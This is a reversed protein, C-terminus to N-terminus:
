ATFCFGTDGWKKFLPLPLHASVCKLEVGVCVKDCSIFFIGAGCFQFIRTETHRAAIARTVNFVGTVLVATIHM